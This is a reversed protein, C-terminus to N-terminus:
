DGRRLRSSWYRGEQAREMGYLMAGVDEDVKQQLAARGIPSNYLSGNPFEAQCAALCALLAACGLLRAFPRHAPTSCM